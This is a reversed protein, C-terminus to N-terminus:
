IVLHYSSLAIIELRWKMTNQKARHRSKPNRQTELAENVAKLVNRFLSQKLFCKRVRWRSFHAAASMENNIVSDALRHHYSRRSSM